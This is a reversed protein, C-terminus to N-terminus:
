TPDPISTVAGVVMFYELGYPEGAVLAKSPSFIFLDEIHSLWTTVGGSVTGLVLYASDFQLGLGSPSAQFNVVQVVSQAMGLAPVM